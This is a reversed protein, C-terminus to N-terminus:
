VRRALASSSSRAKGQIDPQMRSTEVENRECAYIGSAIKRLAYNVLVIESYSPNVFFTQRKQYESM